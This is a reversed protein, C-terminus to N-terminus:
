RRSPPDMLWTALDTASPQPQDLHDWATSKLPMSGGYLRMHPQPRLRFGDIRYAHHYLSRQLLEKYWLRPDQGQHPELMNGMRWLLVKEDDSTTALLSNDFSFAARNVERKNAQLVAILQHDAANWIRVTHDASTSALWRGNPSFAVGYVRSSHGRLIAVLSGTEPDWLRITKDRSASALCKGDPSFTLTEVQKTHGRLHHTRTQKISDWLTITHDQSSSALSIGNPSFAVDVVPAQHQLIGIVAMTAPNWIRVTRDMSASALRRGDPSFDVNIVGASHGSLVGAPKVRNEDSLDWLRVTRDRGASALRAGDPSFAVGFVSDSHDRLIDLPAAQTTDWLCVTYDVSATALLSSVPSFAVGVVSKSHGSLLDTSFAAEVDWLRVTTDESGTALRTGDPSFASAFVMGTHGALVEFSSPSPGKKGERSLKSALLADFNWLKMTKDASTTVMREGNASISMGTIAEAHGQFSSVPNASAQGKGMSKLDWLSVTQDLSVSVLTNGDPSYALGTVTNSDNDLVRVLRGTAVDWIRILGLTSGSALHNNGPSFAFCDIVAPGTLLGISNSSSPKGRSLGSAKSLSTEALYFSMDWLRIQKAEAIALRTGDPSFSLGQVFTKPVNFRHVMGATKPNWLVIQGDLSSSALLKGNPSFALGTVMVQHGRLSTSTGQKNWLQIVGDNSGSALISSDPSFVVDKVFANHGVPQALSQNEDLHHRFLVGANDLANVAGTPGLSVDRLNALDALIEAQFSHTDWVQLNEGSSILQGGPNSKLSRVPGNHGKKRAVIKDSQPNRFVVMGDGGGSVLLGTNTWALVTVAASHGEALTERAQKGPSFRVLGKDLAAYLTKGDKAYLLDHIGSGLEHRSSEAKGTLSQIVVNGDGDGSALLHSDPSFALCSIAGQHGFDYSRFSGNGVNWVFVEKRESAAALWAGNPSFDMDTIGLSAGFLLKEQFGTQTSLLRVIDETGALALLSGDPNTAIRVHKPIVPSTWLLRKMGAMRPDLFRGRAEPVDRTAPIKLSLAALSGLWAETPNGKGLSIGARENFASSLNYNAELTEIEARDREHGIKQNLHVLTVIFASVLLAIAALSAAAFLHRRVLKGFSYLLSEPRAHIPFGELYRKIDAGFAEVSPYRREPEKRLAKLVINDVDGRLNRALRATQGGSRGRDRQSSQGDVEQPTRKLTVAVSPKEPAVECVVRNIEERSTTPFTYPRQGTLLAYLIVGLSYIDTQTSVRRGQLQEPSAYEPTMAQMGSQTRTQDVGSDLNRAVGFDLLKVVGDSSVLINSPKLDRHVILNQHAFAVAECTQLFLKLRERVDLDLRDCYAHIPEGEVLEMVFFPVGEESVGGDYLRAINPHELGALTQREREFLKIAEPSGLGSNLVKLAVKRHYTQDAREALYVVGMGGRGLEEVIRWAGFSHTVQEEPTALSDFLPEDIFSVWDTPANLLSLVEQHLSQKGACARELFAEREELPLELADDLLSKVQDWNESKL